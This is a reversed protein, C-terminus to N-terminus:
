CDKRERGSATWRTTRSGNRRTRKSHSQTCPTSTPPACAGFPQPQWTRPASWWPQEKKQRREWPARWDKRSGRSAPLRWWTQCPTRWERFDTVRGFLYMDMYGTHNMSHNFYLHYNNEFTNCPVHLAERIKLPQKWKGIECIKRSKQWYISGSRHGPKVNVRVGTILLITFCFQVQM